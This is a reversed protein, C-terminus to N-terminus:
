KIFQKPHLLVSEAAAEGASFFPNPPVYNGDRTHHGNNILEAVGGAELTPSGDKAEGVKITDRTHPTDDTHPTGVPCLAIALAAGEEAVARRHKLGAQFIAKKATSFNESLNTRM